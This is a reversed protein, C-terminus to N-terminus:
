QKELAFITAGVSRLIVNVYVAHRTEVLDKQYMRMKFFNVSINSYIHM